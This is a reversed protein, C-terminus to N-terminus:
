DWDDKGSKVSSELTMPSLFDDKIKQVCDLVAERVDPTLTKLSRIDCMESFLVDFMASIHKAHGSQRLQILCRKQEGNPIM